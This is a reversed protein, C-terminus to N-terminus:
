TTRCTSASKMRGSEDGYDTVKFSLSYRAALWKILDGAIRDTSTELAASHGRASRPRRAGSCRPSSRQELEGSGPPTPM